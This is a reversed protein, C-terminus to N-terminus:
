EDADLDSKVRRRIATALESRAKRLRAYATFLPISLVSSVEALPMEDLDRMRLVTRRVKPVSSLAHNVLARVEAATLAEEPDPHPDETEPVPGVVLRRQKRFHAMALRLAIGYLYPRIPRSSDFRENNACLVVFVEQVLDERDRPSVRFHRLIRLLYKVERRYVQATSRPRAPHGPTLPPELLVV